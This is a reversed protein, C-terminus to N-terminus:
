GQRSDDQLAHSQSGEQEGGASGYGQHSGPPRARHIGQSAHPLHREHHRGPSAQPRPMGAAPHHHTPCDPQSGILVREVPQPLVAVRELDRRSIDRTQPNPHAQLLCGPQPVDLHPRDHPGSGDWAGDGGSCHLPLRSQPLENGHPPHATIPFRDGFRELRWGASKSTLCVTQTLAHM